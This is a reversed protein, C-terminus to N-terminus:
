AFQFWYREIAVAPEQNFYEQGHTDRVYELFHRITRGQAPTFRCAREMFYHVQGDLGRLADLSLRDWDLPSPIEPFQAQFRQNALAATVIELATPLTLSHVLNPPIADAGHYDRVTLSLFAPLYYQFGAPSCLALSQEYLMLADPLTQWTYKKFSDRLGLSELDYGPENNSIIDLEGPFPQSGFSAAIEALLEAATM